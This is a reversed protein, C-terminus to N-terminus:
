RGMSARQAKDKRPLAFFGEIFNVLKLPDWGTHESTRDPLMHTKNLDYVGVDISRELAKQHLRHLHEYPVIKDDVAHILCLSTKEPDLGEFRKHTEFKHLLMRSVTQRSLRKFLSMICETMSSFSNILALGRPAQGRRTMEVALMTAVAGGLSEGTLRVREPAIHRSELYDALAKVDEAFAAEGPLMKKYQESAGQGSLHVAIVEAGTDGMAKLWGARYYRDYQWKKDGHPDFGVDGWHGRRGHFAVYVPKTDDAAAKRWIALKAKGRPIPIEEFGKLLEYAAPLKIPDYDIPNILSHTEGFIYYTQVLSVMYLRAFEHATLVGESLSAAVAAYLYNVGAFARELASLKEAPTPLDRPVDSM